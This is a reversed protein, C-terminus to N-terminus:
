RFASPAMGKIQRFTRCFHPLSEFGVATAIESISHGGSQLMECAKEIRFTNLHTIFTTGTHKKFFACFATRNMGVYSSIEDISIRNRYNCFIYVRVKDMRKEVPSTRPLSSIRRVQSSDSLIAFLSLILPVRELDGLSDLRSLIEIIEERKDDEYLVAESLSLLKSIPDYYIPFAAAVRELFDKSFLLTDNEIHGGRDVHEPSFAWQHELGPPLLVVEGEDFAEAVSGLTRIGSGTIIWSLEYSSQSHMGIQKDPTIRVHDFIYDM